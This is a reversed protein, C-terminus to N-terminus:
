SACASRGEPGVPRPVPHAQQPEPRLLVLGRRGQVAPGLRAHRRGAAARGQARRRRPRGPDPRV